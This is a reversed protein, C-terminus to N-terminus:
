VVCVRLLAELARLPADRRTHRGKRRPPPVFGKYPMCQWHRHDVRGKTSEGCIFRQLEKQYPRATKAHHKHAFARSQRRTAGAAILRFGTSAWAVCREVVLAVVREFPVRIHTERMARRSVHGARNELYSCPLARAGAVKRNRPGGEVSCPVATVFNGRAVRSLGEAAHAHVRRGRRQRLMIPRLCASMLHEPCMHSGDHDAKVLYDIGTRSPGAKACM